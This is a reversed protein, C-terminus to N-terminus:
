TSAVDVTRPRQLRLGVMAVLFLAASSATVARVGVRDALAGQAWVGVSYGVNILLMALSSVRGQLERPTREQYRTSLGTMVVLYVAGLVFMTGMAVPLTPSLWYFVTVPGMVLVALDVVRERGWRVALAGVVGSALLAGMGQMSILASAASADSGFVQLAFVPVLAIFPSIFLALAFLSVMAMRIGPEGRAMRAGEVIDAWLGKPEIPRVVPPEAHVRSVALLVAMFSLTNLFMVWAVGGFAMLAAAFVPGLIRGLNFQASMLTMASHLDEKPVLGTILATYAPGSLVHVCGNLLSIVAVAHVTLHGAFALGALCAALLAQAVACLSIFVRRDFRDALAGGLPSLVLSPLYTLAAVGGTWEARGTVETVFVGLALVEMWTGVNSVLAGLWVAVFQRHRLARFSSLSALHPTSM